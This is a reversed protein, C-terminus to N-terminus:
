CYGSHLQFTREEHIKKKGIRGLKRRFSDDDRQPVSIVAKSNWFKYYIIM